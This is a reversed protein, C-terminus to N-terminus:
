VISVLNFWHSLLFSFSIVLISLLWWRLNSSIISSHNEETKCKGLNRLHKQIVVCAKLKKISNYCLFNCLFYIDLKACLFGICGGDQDLILTNGVGWFGEGGGRGEWNEGMEGVGFTVLVQIELERTWYQRNKFKTHLIMWGPNTGPDKVWHQTQSTWTHGNMKMDTYYKMICM